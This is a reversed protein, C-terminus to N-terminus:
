KAPTEKPVSPLGVARAHVAGATAAREWEQRIKRLEAAFRESTVYEDLMKKISSVIGALRRQRNTMQLRSGCQERYPFACYDLITRPIKAERAFELQEQHEIKLCAKLHPDVTGTLEKSQAEQLQELAEQTFLPETEFEHAGLGFRKMIAHDEASMFVYLRIENDYEDRPEEFFFRFASAEPLDEIPRPAIREKVFDALNIASHTRRPVGDLSPQVYPPIGM